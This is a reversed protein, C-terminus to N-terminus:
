GCSGGSGCLPPSRPFRRPHGRPAETRGAGPHSPAYGAGPPHCPSGGGSRRRRSRRPFQAAALQVAGRPVGGHLPVAQRPQATPGEALREEQGPPIPVGLKSPPVLGDATIRDLAQPPAKGTLCFYITACLAYIDTWPGQGKQQYQEVPAYGQKLAITLPKPAGPARRACGFDLLRVVGHELMLNDPSIDRHILGHEHMLALDGFLPELLPSCSGPRSAAGRNSWTASLPAMSTSWSSTPPTIRRLSIGCM